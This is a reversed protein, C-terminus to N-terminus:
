HGCLQDECPIGDADGDMKVGPCRELFYRAEACSAMEHCRTRGDCRFDEREVDMAPQRSGRDPAFTVTDSSSGTGPAPDTVHRWIGAIAAVVLLPGILRRM